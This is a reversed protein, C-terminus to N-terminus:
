LCGELCGEGKTHTERHADGDGKGGELLCRWTCGQPCGKGKGMPVGILIGGKTNADRYTDRGRGLSIGLPM